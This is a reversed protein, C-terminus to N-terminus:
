RSIEIVIPSKAEEWTKGQYSTSQTFWYGHGRYMKEGNARDRVAPTLRWVGSERPTGEIIGTDQHFTLGAPLGVGFLEYEPNNVASRSINVPGGGKQPRFWGIQYTIRADFHDGIKGVLKGDQYNGQLSVNSMYGDAAGNAVTSCLAFALVASAFCVFLKLRMM